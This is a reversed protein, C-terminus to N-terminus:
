DRLRGNLHRQLDHSSVHVNCEKLHQATQQLRASLTTRHTNRTPTRESQEPNYNNLKYKCIKSHYTNYCFLLHAKKALQISSYGKKGNHGTVEEEKKDEEYSM